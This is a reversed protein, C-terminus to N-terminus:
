AGSLDAISCNRTQTEFFRGGTFTLRHIMTFWGHAGDWKPMWGVAGRAVASVSWQVARCGEAVTAGGKM